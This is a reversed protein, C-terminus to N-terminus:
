FSRTSVSKKLRAIIIHILTNRYEPHLQSYPITKVIFKSNLAELFHSNIEEDRVEYCCYVTTKGSSCKVITEILDNNIDKSFVCDTLLIYDYAPLLFKYSEADCVDAIKAFVSWDLSYVQPRLLSLSTLSESSSLKRYCTNVNEMTLEDVVNKLDTFTVQCGRMMMAIGGLGCGAGLELLNKGIMKDRSFKRTEFEVYKAFIVSSDWVTAGIGLSSSSPKQKLELSEGLITISFVDNSSLQKIWGGTTESDEDHDCDDEDLEKLANGVSKNYSKM